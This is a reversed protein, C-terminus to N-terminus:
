ETAGYVPRGRFRLPVIVIAPFVTEILCDRARGRTSQGFACVRFAERRLFESQTGRIDDMGMAPSRLIDGILSCQPSGYAAHHRPVDRELRPM